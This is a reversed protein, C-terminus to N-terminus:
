NFLAPLLPGNNGVRILSRGLMLSLIVGIAILIAGALIVYKIAPKWDAPIFFAKEVLINLFFFIAAAGLMFVVAYVIQEISIM